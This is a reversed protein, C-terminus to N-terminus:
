YQINKELETQLLYNQIYKKKTEDLKLRNILFTSKEKNNDINNFTTKYMNFKTWLESDLIPNISGNKDIVCVHIYVHTCTYVHIVVRVTYM